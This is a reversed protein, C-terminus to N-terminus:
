LMQIERRTTSCRESIINHLHPMDNLYVFDLINLPNPFYQNRLNPPPHHINELPPANNHLLPKNNNIIVFLPQTSPLTEFRPPPNPFGFPPRSVRLPPSPNSPGSPWNDMTQVYPDNPSVQLPPLEQPELKIPIVFRLKPPPAVHTPTPSESPSSSSTYHTSKSSISKSSAQPPSLSKKRPPPSHTRENPQEVYRNLCKFMGRKERQAKTLDESDSLEDNFELFSPAENDDYSSSSSLIVPPSAIKKGKVISPNRSIDLPDMVREHFTFRVILFIAQPNTFLIHNYLHTFLMPGKCKKIVEEMRYIIMSTFNFKRRITLYYLMYATCVKVKNRKDISCFFNEKFFLEWGKLDLHIDNIYLKNPDRLLQAQTTIIPVNDLCIGYDILAQKMWLAQQCAKEAFVYEAKTMFIALATQKKAFWSTLCCGMFTCVGSTIKRDVYDGTHDSDAYVRYKSSDVSDAEDDKTLKIETSMPTKTPKSDELRFKKLMEKIYKSQNFINREKINVIEEVEISEDEENNTNVIKTNKKIADEEGVDDDVLPSLKNPPSEDFAVNLSEKVKM